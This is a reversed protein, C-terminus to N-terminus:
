EVKIYFGKRPKKLNIILVGNKFKAKSSSVDVEGPLDLELVYNPPEGRSRRRAIPSTCPAKIHIKNDSIRLDIKEKETGPLDVTIIYEEPTENVEYLPIICNEREEISKIERILEEEEKRARRIIRRIEDMFDYFSNESM